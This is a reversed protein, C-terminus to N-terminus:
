AFPKRSRCQRMITFFAGSLLFFVFMISIRHHRRRSEGGGTGTGTSEVDEGDNLKDDNPDEVLYVRINNARAMLEDHSDQLLNTAFEEKEALGTWAQVAGIAAKHAPQGPVIQLNLFVEALETKYM